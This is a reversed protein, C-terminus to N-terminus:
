TASLLGEELEALRLKSGPGGLNLFASVLREAHTREAWQSAARSRGREGLTAQLAPSALLRTLAARLGAVDGPPALLGTGEHELWDPIGGVAFAVVPRGHRMAEPGVRGFPEPWLSPVAVVASESLAQEMTPADLWGVFRVNNEVGLQHALARCPEEDEGRGAVWLEWGGPVLALAQILQRLGKEPVLRGAFLVRQRHVPPR